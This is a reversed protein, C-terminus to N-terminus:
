SLSKGEALIDGNIECGNRLNVGGKTIIGRYACPTTSELLMDLGVGNSGITTGSLGGNGFRLSGESLAGFDCFGGNPPETPPTSMDCVSYVADTCAQDWSTPTAGDSCCHDTAPEDCIKTVCAHCNSDLPTANESCLDSIACAAPPTWVPTPGVEWETTAGGAGAVFPGPEEFIHCGPDCPNSAGCEVPMSLSQERFWKSFQPEFPDLREVVEGDSCEGWSEDELCHQVGEWCSLRGEHRNLTM